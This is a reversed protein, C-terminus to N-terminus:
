KVLSKIKNKVIFLEPCVGKLWGRSKHRGSVLPNMLFLLGYVFRGMRGRTGYLDRRFVEVSRYDLIMRWIRVYQGTSILGKGYATKLDRRYQKYILRPDIRTMLSEYSSINNGHWRYLVGVEAVMAVGGLLISRFTLTTDETQCDDDLMGFVDFVRKSFIRSPGMPFRPKNEIYDNLVYILEKDNGSYGKQELENGDSNVYQFNMALSDVGLNQIKELSIAVRDKLSVDDGAALVFYDGHACAVAKNFNKVLGLNEENHNYLVNGKESNERLFREIILPTKDISHDDSIIIETNAYSQNFVGRLAEEIYKEQNYTLLIISVLPQQM